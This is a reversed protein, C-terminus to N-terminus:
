RPRARRLETSFEQRSSSTIARLYGTAGASMASVLVPQRRFTEPLTGLHQHRGTATIVDVGPHIQRARGRRGFARDPFTAGPGAFERCFRLNGAPLRFWRIM